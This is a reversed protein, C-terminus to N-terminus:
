PSGRALSEQVGPVEATEQRLDLRSAGLSSLECTRNPLHHLESDPHRAVVEVWREELLGKNVLPAARCRVYAGASMLIRCESRVSPSRTKGSFRTESLSWVRESFIPHRCRTCVEAKAERRESSTSSVNTQQSGEAIAVRHIRPDVRRRQRLTCFGRWGQGDGHWMQM